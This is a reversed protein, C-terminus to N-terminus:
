IERTPTIPKITMSRLRLFPLNTKTKKMLIDHSKKSKWLKKLIVHVDGSPFYHTSDPLFRDLEFDVRM